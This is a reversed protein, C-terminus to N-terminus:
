AFETQLVGLLADLSDRNTLSLYGRSKGHAGRISYAADSASFVDIAGRYAHDRDRLELSVGGDSLLTPEPLVSEFDWFDLLTAAAHLADLYEHSGGQGDMMARLQRLNATADRKAKPLADELKESIMSAEYRAPMQPQGVYSSDPVVAHRGATTTPLWDDQITRVNAHTPSSVSLAALVGPVLWPKVPRSTGSPIENLM